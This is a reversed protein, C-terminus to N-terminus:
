TGPFWKLSLGFGCGTQGAMGLLFHDGTATNVLM